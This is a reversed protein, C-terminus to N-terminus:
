LRVHISRLAEAARQRGFRPVLWTCRTGDGRIELVDIGADRLAAAGRHVTGADAGDVVIASLDDRVDVRDLADLDRTLAAVQEVLADIGDRDEVLAVGRVATADIDFSVLGLGDIREATIPDLSWGSDRTEIRICVAHEIVEVTTTSM